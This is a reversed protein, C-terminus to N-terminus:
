ELISACRACLTSHEAHKGVSTSFSWCRECKEGDARQVQVAIEEQTESCLLEVQSVIFVTPLQAIEAQLLPYLESGCTLVIKAELSKGIQKQVRAAELAKNVEDRVAILREWKALLAEDMSPGIKNPTIERMVPLWLTAM